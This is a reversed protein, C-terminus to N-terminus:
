KNVADSGKSYFNYIDIALLANYKAQTFNQLAQIYLNKQQVYEVTNYTGIRLEEGAIRYAEENYKLQEQSTGYQSVATNASIYASEVAQSLITKTNAYSLDAQELAIKARAVNTQNVKRSFIPISATIGIQQYISNNFQSFGLSTNNGYSTGLGGSLSITPLYGSQANKIDLKAGAIALESNKIEPRYSLANALVQQQSPIAQISGTSDPREIDFGTDMPLQLLQKLTLKDQKENNQASTLTFQDNALQAELQILDKRAASGTNYQAQMQKVQEKSSNVLDEAYVITEKDLLINNYAQIIQLYLNNKEEEVDLESMSVDLQKQQIDRRLVGGNYLTVASTLGLSGNNNTTSSGGSGTVTTHNLNHSTSATLNPWLAARSQILNQESTLKSLRLSNVTINNEQAYRLCDQLTWRAPLTDQAYIGQVTWVSTVVLLGSLFLWKRISNYM